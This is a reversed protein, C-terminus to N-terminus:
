AIVRLCDPGGDDGRLCDADGGSDVDDYDNQYDDDGGVLGGCEDGSDRM